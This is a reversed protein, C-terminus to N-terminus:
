HDGMRGVHRAPSIVVDSPPCGHDNAFVPWPEKKEARSPCKNGTSDLFGPQRSRNLAVTGSIM